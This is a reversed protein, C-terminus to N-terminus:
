RSVQKRIEEMNTMKHTGVTNLFNIAFLGLVFLAILFGIYLSHLIGGVHGSGYLGSIYNTLGRNNKFIELFRGRLVSGFLLKQYYSDLWYLVVTLVMTVIIVGIQIYQQPSAFGLFSGATTLGTLFSFGYKRLDVLINDLKENTDRCVKWEEYYNAYDPSPSTNETNFSNLAV